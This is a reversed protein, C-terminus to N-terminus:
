IFESFFIIMMIIIVIFFIVAGISNKNNPKQNNSKEKLNFVSNKTNDLEEEIKTSFDKNEFVHEQAHQESDRHYVTSDYLYDISVVKEAESVRTKSECMKCDFFLAHDSVECAMGCNKCRYKKM